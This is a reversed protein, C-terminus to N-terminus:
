WGGGLAKYLAVVAAGTEAAGGARADQAALARAEADLVALFSDLGARYRERALEAASEAAREARILAAQRRRLRDLDVLANETEELAGLVTKEWRALAADTEAERVAIRDRM